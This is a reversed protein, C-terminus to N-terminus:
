DGEVDIVLNCNPCSLNDGEDLVLLSAFDAKYWCRACYPEGPNDLFSRRMSELLDELEGM